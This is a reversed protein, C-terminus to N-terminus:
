GIHPFGFSDLQFTEVCPIKNTHLAQFTKWKDSCINVAVSSSNLLQINKQEVWHTIKELEYDIEPAIPWVYDVSQILSNLIEVISQNELIRVVQCNLPVNLDEIRWDLLIILEAFSLEALDNILNQLMLLGEKALSAPIKESIMGGGSIYEFVLIKKKDKIKM